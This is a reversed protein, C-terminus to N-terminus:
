HFTAARRALSTLRCRPMWSSITRSLCNLYAVGTKKGTDGLTGHNTGIILAKKGTLNFERGKYHPHVGLLNLLRPVNLYYLVGGAVLGIAGAIRGVKAFLVGAVSLVILAPSVILAIITRM